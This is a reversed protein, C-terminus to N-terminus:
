AERAGGDRERIGVALGGVESEVGLPASLREGNGEVYVPSRSHSRGCRSGSFGERCCSRAGPGTVGELPPKDAAGQGARPDGRWM